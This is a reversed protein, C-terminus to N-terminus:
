KKIGGIKKILNTSGCYPCIEDEPIFFANVFITGKNRIVTSKDFDLNSQKFFIDLM